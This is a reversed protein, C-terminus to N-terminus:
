GSEGSGRVGPAHVGTRRDGAPHAGFLLCALFWKRLEEEKRSSLNIGLKKAVATPM